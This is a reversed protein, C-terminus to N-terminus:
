ELPGHKGAALTVHPPPTLPTISPCRLPSLPAISPHYLPTPPRHLAPAACTVEVGHPIEELHRAELAEEEDEEMLSVFTDVGAMMM